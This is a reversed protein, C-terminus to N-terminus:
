VLLFKLTGREGGIGKAAGTAHASEGAGGGRRVGAGGHGPEGAGGPGEAAAFGRQRAHPPFATTEEREKDQKTEFWGAAQRTTYYHPLATTRFCTPSRPFLPFSSVPPTRNNPFPLPRQTNSTNGIKGDVSLAVNDGPVRGIPAEPFVPNFAWLDGGM